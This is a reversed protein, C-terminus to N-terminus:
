AYADALIAHLWAEEAIKLGTNTTERLAQLGAEAAERAAPINGEALLVAAEARYQLPVPRHGLRYRELWQRGNEADGHHYACFYAKELLLRAPAGGAWAIRSELGKELYTYAQDLRGNDMAWRYGAFHASLDDYSGDSVALAQEVLAGDWDRPRQGLVNSGNLAVLACWRDAIAGGHLLTAIRGGDAPLGNHYHGPKMATLFFLGSIVASALSGELLWAVDQTVAPNARVSWFVGGGIGALLLSALPGGLAFLLMRGRLREQSRPVSAALGNFLNGKHLGIQVKKGDRVLKFPGVILMHFRLGAVRGALLHGAEHVASVLLLLLVAALATRGFNALLSSPPALRAYLLIETMQLAIFLLLAYIAINLTWNWITILQPSFLPLRWRIREDM